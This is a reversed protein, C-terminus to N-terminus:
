LGKYIGLSLNNIKGTRQATISLPLEKFYYKLGGGFRFGNNFEDQTGHFYQEREAGITQLGYSIFPQFGGINYGANATFIKPITGNSTLSIIQNVSFYVNGTRLGLELGGTIYKSYGANFGLVAYTNKEERTMQASCINACLLLIILLKM